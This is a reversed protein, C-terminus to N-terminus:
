EVAFPIKISSVLDGHKGDGFEANFTVKSERSLPSEFFLFGTIIGGDELVGEPLAMRITELSPRRKGWRQFQKDYLEDDRDLTSPWPELQKYARRFSPAVYFNTAAYMPRVTPVPVDGDLPLVPVPRYTRGTKGTFAFDEHRVRIPKGSDNAIRVKVPVISDPLEDGSESWAGVNASCRVGDAVSYAATPAGPVVKAKAAPVLEGHACGAAAIMAAPILMAGRAPARSSQISKRM